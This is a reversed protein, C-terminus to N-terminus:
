VMKSTDDVSDDSFRVLAIVPIVLMLCSVIASATGISTIDVDERYCSRLTM